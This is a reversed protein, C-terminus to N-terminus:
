SVIQLTRPLMEGLVTTASLRGALTSRAAVADRYAQEARSRGKGAQSPAGDAGDVAQMGSRLLALAQTRLQSVRSETVGLDAAIEAMKRHEFFYQEVVHRLRAPLEVVADRLLGVQERRLLVADPTETHAPLVDDGDEPAIAHLSVVAARHVDAEIAGINATSVGMTHAVETTTPTRGLTQTLLHRTTDLERARSRVGRSAWDMSRLEDTLAGRIRIAAYRAFPTGNNPDFSQASTVLAYRAASALDDRNVHAPVRGVVGPSEQEALEPIPNPRQFRM